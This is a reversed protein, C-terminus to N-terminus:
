SDKYHLNVAPVFSWLTWHTNYFSVYIMLFYTRHQGEEPELRCWEVTTLFTINVTIKNHQFYFVRFVIIQNKLSYQFDHLTDFPFINSFPSYTFSISSRPLTGKSGALGSNAHVSRFLVWSRCSNSHGIILSRNAATVGCVRTLLMVAVRAYQLKSPM